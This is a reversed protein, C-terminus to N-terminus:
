AHSPVDTRGFRTTAAGLLAAAWLTLAIIAAVASLTATLSTAAGFAALPTNGVIDSVLGFPLYLTPNSEGLILLAVPRIISEIVIAAFIASLTAVQNRILLGIGFGLTAYLGLAIISRGWMSLTESPEALLPQGQAILGVALVSARVVALLTAAVVTSTVLATLKALVLCIRRPEVLVASALSGRRFEGTITLAGFLTAAIAPMSTGIGASGLIDAILVQLPPSALTLAALQEDTFQDANTANPIVADLAILADILRPLFALLLGVLAAEALLLCLLVRGIVAYRIRLLESAIM